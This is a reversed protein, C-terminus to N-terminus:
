KTVLVSDINYVRSTFDGLFLLEIDYKVKGPYFHIGIIKGSIGPFNDEGEPMLFVKVKDFIQHNSPLTQINEGVTKEGWNALIAEKVQNSKM